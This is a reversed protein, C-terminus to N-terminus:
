RSEVDYIMYAPTHSASIFSPLLCVSQDGSDQAVAVPKLENACRGCWCSPHRPLEDIVKSRATMPAGM